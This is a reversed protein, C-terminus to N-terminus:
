KRGYYQHRFYTIQDSQWDTHM